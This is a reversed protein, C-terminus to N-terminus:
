WIVLEYLIMKVVMTKRHQEIFNRVKHGRKRTRRGLAAVNGKEKAM